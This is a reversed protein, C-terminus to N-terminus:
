GCGVAPLAARRLGCDGFSAASQAKAFAQDAEFDAQARRQQDDGTKRPALRVSQEFDIFSEVGAWTRVTSM